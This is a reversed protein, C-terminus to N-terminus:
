YEVDFTELFQVIDDRNYAAQIETSLSKLHPVVHKSNGVCGSTM